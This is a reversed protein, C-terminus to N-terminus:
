REIFFRGVKVKNRMLKSMNDDKIGAIRNSKSSDKFDSFVNVEDSEDSLIISVEFKCDRSVIGRGTEWCVARAHLKKGLADAM